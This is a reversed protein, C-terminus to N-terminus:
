WFRQVCMNQCGKVEAGEAESHSQYVNYWCDSYAKHASAHSKYTSDQLVVSSNGCCSSSVLVWPLKTPPVTQM